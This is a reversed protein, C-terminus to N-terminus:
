KSGGALAGVRGFHGWFLNVTSTNVMKSTAFVVRRFVSVGRFKAIKKAGVRDGPCGFRGGFGRM